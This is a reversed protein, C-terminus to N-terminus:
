KYLIAEVEERIFRELRTEEFLQSLEEVTEIQDVKDKIAKFRTQYTFRFDSIYRLITEPKKAAAIDLILDDILARM